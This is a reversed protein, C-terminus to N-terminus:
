YIIFEKYIELMITVFGIIFFLVLLLLFGVCPFEQRPSHVEAFKLRFFFLFSFFILLSSGCVLCVICWSLVGDNQYKGELEWIGIWQMTSKRRGSVRFFMKRGNRKRGFPIGLSVGGISISERGLPLLAAM